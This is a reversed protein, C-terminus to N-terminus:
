YNMGLFSGKVFTVTILRQKYSSSYTVYLWTYSGEFYNTSKWNCHYLMEQNNVYGLSVALSKTIRNYIATANYDVNNHVFRGHYAYYHAPVGYVNPIPNLYFYDNFNDRFHISYQSTDIMISNSGDIGKISPDNITRLPDEAYGPTINESTGSEVSPLPNNDEVSENCSLFLVVIFTLSIVSLIKTTKM